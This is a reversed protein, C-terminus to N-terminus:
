VLVLRRIQEEGVTEERQSTSPRGVRETSEGLTAFAFNEYDNNHNPFDRINPTGLWMKHSM